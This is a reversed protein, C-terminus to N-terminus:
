MVEITYSVMVAGKIWSGIVDSGQGVSWNCRPSKNTYKVQYLLLLVDHNLHTQTDQRSM